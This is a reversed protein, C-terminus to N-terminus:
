LAVAVNILSAFQILFRPAFNLREHRRHFITRCRDFRVVPITNGFQPNVPLSHNESSSFHTSFTSYFNKKTCKCISVFNAIFLNFSRFVHICTHIEKFKIKVRFHSKTRFSFLIRYIKWKNKRWSESIIGCYM